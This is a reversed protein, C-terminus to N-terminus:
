VSNIFCFLLYHELNDVNKNVVRTPLGIIANAYFWGMSTIFRSMNSGVFSRTCMAFCFVF